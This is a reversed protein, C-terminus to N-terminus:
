ALARAARMARYSEDNESRWWKTGEDFRHVQGSWMGDLVLWMGSHKLVVRQEFHEGFVHPGRVLVVITEGPRPPRKM